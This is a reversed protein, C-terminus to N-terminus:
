AESNVNQFVSFIIKQPFKYNQFFLADQFPNMGNSIRQNTM